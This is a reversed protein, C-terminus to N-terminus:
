ESRLSESPNMMAARVSQFSVTLMAIAITVIFVLGFIEWHINIRYSFSQLWNNMVWWAVPSGILFSFVVLKLFDESLLRTINIISAGLVKRIGIEKIRNEAMFSALGFLGLCSIFVTLGAFLGALTGTRKENAFKAAYEEDVFNYEFPYQPNYKKFISEAKKLNDSISNVPNLKINLIYFGFLDPGQIMIPAVPLYPSELIFDKIVGVIHWSSGNLGVTKGVPDKLRMIKVAAENLLVATSDTSYKRINIDRGAALTLGMTSVFNEDTGLMNFDTKLDAPTSGPWQLGWTDAWHRTMPGSTRSVSSAIGNDILENRILPFNKEIDGQMYFYVLRDKVYGADREQAFRLQKLVILTSFILIIAFTFQLVVLFQRPSAEKKGATFVGKLVKVPRFSSLYFAPYSGALIGTLVMFGIATIWFNDNSFDIFLKKNVLLNFSGLSLHVIFLALIGAIFSFLLSEALFQCILYIRPAGVVKRLGVEKARKESRATSLNMFNICAILLIFGAIIMFIRVIEIQGGSVKGNEFRSYLHWKSAPHGFLESTSQTKDKQTHDIILNKIKANFATGTAGPKLTYYTRVSNNQWFEDDWGIKKLYTWPLLYEFKFQTNDPLDKLIGKVTFLDVSDIKIQKGFAPQNGFLKKSLSETIVIDGPGRLATTPDGELLPFNFMSLFGGDTFNGPVNFHRDGVTFLFNANRMRVADEIEPYDSKLTPALIKPTFNNAKIEGGDNESRYAMYLRTEKVHFRDFGLENQIRLGILIASAMGIALGLINITSFVRNRRLNRFAIIFFNRIMNCSGGTM